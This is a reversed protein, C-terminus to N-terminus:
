KEELAIGVLKLAAHDVIFNITISVLIKLAVQSWGKKITASLVLLSKLM